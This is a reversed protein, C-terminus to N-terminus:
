HIFGAMYSSLAAKNPAYRLFTSKVIQTTVIRFKNQSVIARMAAFFATTGMKMRIGNLFWAGKYYITQDYMSCDSTAPANPFVYVSSDVYRWSCYSRMSIGLSYRSAFTVFAEDLWPATLQDDGVQDYFWQHATEHAVTLATGLGASGIFVIGSYENGSSPRTAQAIVFRSRPYSGYTTVYKTLAAAAANRATGGAAGALFYVIVSVGSATVSAHLFAPSAAFAFERAAPMTYVKTTATSSVLVGPAAITVTAAHTLELRVASAVTYQSDGPYRLGHGNSLVPYWSSIQMLGSAKSFRARQSDRIDSTATATFDIVVTAAETRRLNYGLPLRVDAINPYSPVVTRGDVTARTVVLEGFARALASFDLYGIAGADGNVISVTMATTLRAHGYDLTTKLVYSPQLTMTSRPAMVYGISASTMKPSGSGDAIRVTVTLAGWPRKAALALTMSTALPQAATWTTGGDLSFAMTAAATFGHTAIALHLTPDFTTTAGGDITLTTSAPRDVTVTAAAEASVPGVNGADDAVANARLSVILTGAVLSPQTLSVSYTDGAGTVAGVTWGTSTGAIDFDGAALGSVAESFSLAYAISPATVVTAAPKFSKVTPDTEDITISVASVDVAPGANASGDVVSGAALSTILTGASCGTVEVSYSTGSNASPTAVACASATGTTAFDAATLGTVDESFVLAYVVDGVHTPNPTTITFSTVDPAIPNAVAPASSAPGSDPRAAAVSAPDM